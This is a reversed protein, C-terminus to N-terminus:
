WILCKYHNPLVTSAWLHQQRMGVAQGGGAWGKVRLEAGQSLGLVQLPSAVSSVDHVARNSVCTGCVKMRIMIRTRLEAGRALGLM